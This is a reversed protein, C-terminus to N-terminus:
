AIVELPKPKRIKREYYRPYLMGDICEAWHAFHEQRILNVSGDALHRRFRRSVECVNETGAFMEPHAGSWCISWHPVTELAMAPRDDLPLPANIEIDSDVYLRWLGEACFRVRRADSLQYPCRTDDADLVIDERVVTAGPYYSLLKRTLAERWAPASAIGAWYVLIKQNDMFVVPNGTQGTM